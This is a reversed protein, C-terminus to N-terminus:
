RQEMQGVNHGHATLWQLTETFYDNYQFWITAEIDNTGNQQMVGVEMSYINRRRTVEKQVTIGSSVDYYSEPSSTAEYDIFRDSIQEYTLRELDAQICAVLEAKEAGTIMGTEGNTMLNLYQIREPHKRFNPFMSDKAGKTNLIEYLSEGQCYYRRVFVRGGKLQYAVYVSQKGALEEGSLVGAEILSGHFKRVMEIEAPDSLVAVGNTSYHTGEERTWNYPYYDGVLTQSISDARPVGTGFGFINSDIAFFLLLAVVVFAIYGKYYKWIRFSKLLLIKATAYGVLAFILLLFVNPAGQRVGSVEQFFSTGLVMVCFTVGYLFVPRVWSFAVVDGAREIDRKYYIFLGLGGFLLIYVGQLVSIWWIPEYSIFQPFYVPTIQLLFEYVRDMCSTTFGFLWGDLMNAILATMGVPVACLIFSFLIQAISSGTFLGVFICFCLVSAGTLLQGFLWDLITPLAFLPSFGGFLSMLLLICSNAVIPMALLLFGSVLTSLYLQTRTVPLAHFLTASRIGQLYRFVCIGIIAAAGILLVFVLENSFIISTPNWDSFRVLRDLYYEKEVILRYPEALFLFFAYIASIWWFRKLNYRIIGGKLLFTKSTM